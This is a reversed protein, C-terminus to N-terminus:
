LRPLPPSVSSRLCVLVGFDPGLECHAKEALAKQKGILLSHSNHAALAIPFVLRPARGKASVPEIQPALAQFSLSPTLSKPEPQLFLSGGLVTVFACSAPIEPCFWAEEV